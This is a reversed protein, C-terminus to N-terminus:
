EIGGSIALRLRADTRLAEIEVLANTKNASRTFPMTRLYTSPRISNVNDLVCKNDHTRAVALSAVWTISNVIETNM